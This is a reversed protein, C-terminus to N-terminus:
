DKSDSDPAKDTEDYDSTDLEARIEDSIPGTHLQRKGDAPFAFGALQSIRDMALYIDDPDDGQRLPLEDISKKTRRVRDLVGLADKQQREDASLTNLEKALEGDTMTPRESLDEAWESPVVESNRKILERLIGQIIRTRNDTERKLGMEDINQAVAIELEQLTSFTSLDLDNFRETLKDINKEFPTEEPAQDNTESGEPNTM